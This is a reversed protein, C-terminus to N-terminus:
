RQAAWTRVWLMAIAWRIVLDPPCGALTSELQTLYALAASPDEHELIGYSLRLFGAAEVSEAVVDTGGERIARAIALETAEHAIVAPTLAKEPKWEQGQPEQPRTPAEVPGERALVLRSRVVHEVGDVKVEFLAKEPGEELRWGSPVGDIEAM